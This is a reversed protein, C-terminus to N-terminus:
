DSPSAIWSDGENYWLSNSLVQRCIPCKIKRENRIENSIYDLFCNYGQNDDKEWHLVHCCPHLKILRQNVNMEEFCIGCDSGYETVRHEVLEPPCFFITGGKKYGSKTRSKTRSKKRPKTRSKRYQVSKINKM